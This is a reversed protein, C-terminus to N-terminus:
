EPYVALIVYENDEKGAILKYEYGGSVSQVNEDDSNEPGYSTTGSNSCISRITVFNSQELTTYSKIDEFSDGVIGLDWFLERMEARDEIPGNEDIYLMLDDVIEDTLGPISSLTEKSAFNINIAIQEGGYVTVDNRIDEFIEPTIGKVLTLEEISDFIDNKTKYPEPLSEYYNDEAGNLHTLDDPDIWDLISDVIEDADLMDIGKQIFFDKYFDRDEDSIGNINIKGNEDYLYVSCSASGIQVSYPDNGPTWKTAEKEEEDQSINDENINDGSIPAVEGGTPPKESTISSEEGEVDQQDSMPEIASSDGATSMKKLAYVAAGRAAYFDKMREINVSSLSIATRTDKSFGLAVMGLM